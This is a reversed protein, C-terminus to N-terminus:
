HPPPVRQAGGPGEGLDVVTSTFYHVYSFGIFSMVGSSKEAFGPANKFLTTTLNQKEFKEIIVHSYKRRSETNCAYPVDQSWREVHWGKHKSHLHGLGYVRQM